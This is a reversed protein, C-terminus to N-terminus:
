KTSKQCTHYWSSWKGYWFILHCLGFCACKTLRVFLKILTKWYSCEALNKACKWYCWFMCCYKYLRRENDRVRVPGVFYNSMAFTRSLPYELYCICTIHFNSITFIKFDLFFVFDFKLTVCVLSLFNSCKSANVNISIM